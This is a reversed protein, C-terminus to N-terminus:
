SLDRGIVRYISVGISETKSSNLIPLLKGPGDFGTGGGGMVVEDAHGIVTLEPAKFHKQM